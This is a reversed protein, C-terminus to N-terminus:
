RMRIIYSMQKPSVGAVRRFRKELADQSIFLSDALEKIRVIGKASHISELATLILGDSQPHYLRSLLFREILEIRQINNTAAALQEEIVSVNKYGAFCDLPVSEEFLEYLPEKIFYNARGEKFIVLVNATGKSYNILRGSKRLGSVVSPPLAKQVDGSLDNVQGKYRFVLVLSTDPLIRNVMGEQSELVLYAKIFPRLLHTPKYTDIIM